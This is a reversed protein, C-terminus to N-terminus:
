VCDPLDIYMCSCVLVRVTNRKLKKVQLIVCWWDMVSFFSIPAFIGAPQSSLSARSWEENQVASAVAVAIGQENGKQEEIDGGQFLVYEWHHFPTAKTGFDLPKTPRGRRPCSCDESARRCSHHWGDEWRCYYFKHVLSSVSRAIYFTTCPM